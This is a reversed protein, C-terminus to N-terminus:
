NSSTTKENLRQNTFQLDTSKSVFAIKYKFYDLMNKAATKKDFEPGGMAISCDELVIITVPVRKTDIGALANIGTNRQLMCENLAGGIYLLVNIKEKWMVYRFEMHSCLVYENSLPTLHRSIDRDSRPYVEYIPAKSVSRIKQAQRWVRNNPLPWKLFPAPNQPAIEFQRAFDKVEEKLRHYQSYKDVVPHNPAHIITVGHKRCENLLRKQNRLIPNGPESSENPGAWTDVLVLATEDAYVDLIANGEEAVANKRGQEDTELRFSPLYRVPIRLVQKQREPVAEQSVLEPKHQHVSKKVAYLPLLFTFARYWLAGLLIGCFLTIVIAPLAYERKVQNRKKM